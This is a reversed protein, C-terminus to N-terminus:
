RVRNALVPFLETFESNAMRKISVDGELPRCGLLLFQGVVLLPLNQLKVSVRRSGTLRAAYRLDANMRESAHVPAPFSEGHRGRGHGRRDRDQGQANLDRM